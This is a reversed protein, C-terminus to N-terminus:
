LISLSVEFETPNSIIVKGDVLCNTNGNYVDRMYFTNYDEPSPTEIYFPILSGILGGQKNTKIELNRLQILSSSPWEAKMFFYLEKNFEIEAYGGPGIELTTFSYTDVEQFWSCLGIDESTFLTKTGKYVSPKCGIWRIIKLSGTDCCFSKQLNLYQSSFQTGLSGQADIM